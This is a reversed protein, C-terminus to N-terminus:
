FVWRLAVSVYETMAKTIASVEVELVEDVVSDVVAM